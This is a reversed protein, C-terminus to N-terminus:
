SSSLQLDKVSRIIIPPFHIFYLKFFIILTLGVFNIEVHRYLLKFYKGCKARIVVICSILCQYIYAGFIYIICNYVICIFILM